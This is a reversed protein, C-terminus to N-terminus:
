MLDSPRSVMAPPMKYQPLLLRMPVNILRWISTDSEYGFVQATLDWVLENQNELEIMKLSM